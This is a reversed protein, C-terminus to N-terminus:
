GRALAEFHESAESRSVAARLNGAIFEPAGPVGSREVAAIAREVDFPTRRLELEDGLLAWYAAVEGEFPMGVSGANIWRLGGIRRDEQMHTHGAVVADADVGAVITELRADSTIPTVIEEDSRPTAHCFLVRGLPLQLEFTEPLGLLFAREEDSHRDASWQSVPWDDAALAAPDGLMREHNGRLWLARDGLERLLVLTEHPQPGTTVDGGVVVYDVGEREVEALVAELPAVMGHIDYLAAVRL